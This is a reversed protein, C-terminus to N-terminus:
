QVAPFAFAQTSFLTAQLVCPVTPQLLAAPLALHLASSVLTLQQHTTIARYVALVIVQSWCTLNHAAPVLTQQLVTSVIPV